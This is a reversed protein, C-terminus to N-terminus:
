RGKAIMCGTVKRDAYNPTGNVELETRQGVALGRVAEDFGQFLKNGMIDGAGIEFSLPENVAYSSELLGGDEDKCTFHLAVIDGVSAVRVVDDGSAVAALVSGMRKARRHRMARMPRDPTAMGPNPLRSKQSTNATAANSRRPQNCGIKAPLHRM